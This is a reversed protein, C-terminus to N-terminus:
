LTWCTIFQMYNWGRRRYERYIERINEAVERHVVTLINYDVGFRDFLEVTEMIRDFTADGGASHRYQDHITKLGDVSIGILFREACFLPVM